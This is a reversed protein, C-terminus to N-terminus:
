CISSVVYITVNGKFDGVHFARRLALGACTVEQHRRRLAGCTSRTPAEGVAIRKESGNKERGFDVEWMPATFDM